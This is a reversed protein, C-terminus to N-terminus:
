ENLFQWLSGLFHENKSIFFFKFLNAYMKEPFLHEPKSYFM